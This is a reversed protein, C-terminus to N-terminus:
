DSPHSSPKPFLIRSRLNLTKGERHLANTNLQHHKLLFDGLLASWSISLQIIRLVVGSMVGIM